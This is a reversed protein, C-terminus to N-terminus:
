RTSGEFAPHRAPIIQSIAQAVQMQLRTDNLSKGASLSSNIPLTQSDSCLCTRNGDGKLGRTKGALSICHNQPATAENVPPAVKM